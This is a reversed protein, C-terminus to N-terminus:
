LRQMIEHHKDKNNLESYFLICFLSSDIEDIFQISSGILQFAYNTIQPSLNYYIDNSIDICLKTYFKIARVKDTFM